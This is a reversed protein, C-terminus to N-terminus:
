KTDHQISKVRVSMSREAVEYMQQRIQHMRKNILIVKARKILGVCFANKRGLKKREKTKHKVTGNREVAPALWLTLTGLASLLVGSGM